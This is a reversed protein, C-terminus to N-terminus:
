ACLRARLSPSTGDRTKFRPPARLRGIPVCGPSPRRVCGTGGAALDPCLGIALVPPTRRRGAHTVRWMVAQGTVGASAPVRASRSEGSSNRARCSARGDPRPRVTCSRWAPGRASERWRILAPGRGIPPRVGAYWRHQPPRFGSPEWGCPGWTLSGINWTSGNPSLGRTSSRRLISRQRWAHLESDLGGSHL